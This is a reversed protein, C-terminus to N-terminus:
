CNQYVTNEQAYLSGANLSGTGVVVVVIKLTKSLVLISCM